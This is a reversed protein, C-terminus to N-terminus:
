SSRSGLPRRHPTTYKRGSHRRGLQGANAGEVARLSELRPLARSRRHRVAPTEENFRRWSGSLQARHRPRGASDRASGPLWGPQVRVAIKGTSRRSCLASGQGCLCHGALLERAFSGASPRSKGSESQRSPRESPPHRPVEVPPPREPVEEIPSEPVEVPPPRPEAPQPRPPEFPPPRPSEGPRTPDNPNPM